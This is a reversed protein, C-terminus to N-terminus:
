TDHNSEQWPCPIKKRKELVHQSTKNGVWGGIWYTGYTKNGYYLPRSTYSVEAIPRHLTSNLLYM